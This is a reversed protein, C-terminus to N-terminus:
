ETEGNERKNLYIKVRNSVLVRDYNEIGMSDMIEPLQARARMIAEHLSFDENVIGIREDILYLIEEMDIM